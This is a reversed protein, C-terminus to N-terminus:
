RGYEFSTSPPFSYLVDRVIRFFYRGCDAAVTVTKLDCLISAVQIDATLDGLRFLAFYRGPQLILALHDPAVHFGDQRRRPHAHLVQHLHRCEQRIRALGLYVRRRALPIESVSAGSECDNYNLRELRLPQQLYLGDSSRLVLSRRMRFGPPLEPTGSGLWGFHPLPAGIACRARLADRATPVRRGAGSLCRELLCGSRAIPM